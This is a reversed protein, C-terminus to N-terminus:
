LASHVHENTTSNHPSQFSYASNIPSIWRFWSHMESLLLCMQATFNDHFLFWTDCFRKLYRLKFAELCFLYCPFFLFMSKFAWIFNLEWHWVLSHSLMSLSHSFKKKYIVNASIPYKQASGYYIKRSSVRNTTRNRKELASVYRIHQCTTVYLVSVDFM